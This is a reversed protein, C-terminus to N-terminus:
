LDFAEQVLVEMAIGGGDTSNSMKFRSVIVSSM